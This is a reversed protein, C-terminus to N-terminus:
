RASGLEVSFGYKSGHAAAFESIRRDYSVFPCRLEIATAILM